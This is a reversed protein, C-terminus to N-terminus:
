HLHPKSMKNELVIQCPLYLEQISWWLFLWAISDELLTFNNAYIFTQLDHFCRESGTGNKGGELFILLLKVIKISIMHILLM